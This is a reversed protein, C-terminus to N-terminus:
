SYAQFVQHALPRFYNPAHVLRSGYWSFMEGDVLHISANPCIENFYAFHKEKFPYPESSLFIHAPQAKHLAEETIIPYRTQDVFVNKFGCKVLMEHIFTDHGISMLPKNWIFYAVSLQNNVQPLDAFGKTIEHRINQAATAKDVLAGIQLIMDLADDLTKIDSMWVPYQQMLQEVQSQENEEKNGIILDPALASIKAFDIQKTGGVRPKIRFIEEPHVCFKTIGVIEDRLGL